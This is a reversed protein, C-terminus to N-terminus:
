ILERAIRIAIILSSRFSNVEPLPQLFSVQYVQRGMLLFQRGRKSLPSM